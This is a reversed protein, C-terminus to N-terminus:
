HPKPAGPGQGQLIWKLMVGVVALGAVLLLAFLIMSISQPYVKWRDFTFANSDPSAMGLHALRVHERGMLMGVVVVVVSLCSLGFWRFQEPRLFALALLPLLAVIALMAALAWVSSLVGTFGILSDRVSPTLRFLFFLGTGLQALTAFLAVKLGLKILRSNLEDSPQGAQRARHTKWWGVAAFWLGAIATAGVVDHLYRALTTTSPTYWRSGSFETSRWLAPRLSLEHNNAMIWGVWLFCATAIISVALRLVPRGPQSPTAPDPSLGRLLLWYVLYFGVLTAVFFSFWGFGMLVTSSYFYPGYLVQVFLLPAVGMTIAMSITVPVMKYFIRAMQGASSCGRVASVNLGIAILSGGLVFNMFVLHLFQTLLLLAVFILPHGPLGIPDLAPVAITEALIM